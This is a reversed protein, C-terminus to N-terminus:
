LEYGLVIGGIPSYAEFTADGTNQWATTAMTYLGGVYGGLRVGHGLDAHVRVRLGAQWCLGWESPDGSGVTAQAMGVTLVPGVEVQWDGPALSSFVDTNYRYALAPLVALSVMELELDEDIHVTVNSAKAATIAGPARDYWAAIGLSWGAGDLDMRTRTYEVGAHVGARWDGDLSQDVSGGALDIDSVDGSTISPGLGGEIWISHISYVGQADMGAVVGEACPLLGCIGCWAASLHILKV